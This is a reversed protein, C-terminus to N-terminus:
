AEPPTDSPPLARAKRRRYRAFAGPEPVEVAPKPDDSPRGGGNGFRDRWSGGDKKADDKKHDGDPKHEPKSGGAPKGKGGSAGGADGDRHPGFDDPGGKKHPKGNPDRPGFDDPKPKGTETGGSTSSSGGTTSSSSSSSSTAVTGGSTSSTTQSGGTTSSTSSTGSSASAGTGNPFAPKGLEVGTNTGGGPAGGGRWGGLPGGAGSTGDFPAGSGAGTGGNGAVAPQGLPGRANAITTTV